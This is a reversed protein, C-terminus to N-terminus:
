VRSVILTEFIATVADWSMKERTLRLGEKAFAERQLPSELLKLCEAALSEASDALLINRGPDVELGEAGISTSVTPIGAAMAEYIKLRTGGGIRLPVVSVLSGHLWPRVDEVTGTVLIRSDRSLERLRKTPRRGALAVTTDPRHRWILPMIEQTLWVAGDVNPLWDMSGLFILDAKHEPPLNPPAFFDTDVGTPVWTADQRGFRTRTLEADKESVCIVRSFSRSALGEFRNMKRAQSQLYWNHLWTSAREAHREWILSEVNHQFLVLRDWHDLSAAPALFDCVIADYREQADLDRAKARMAESKWREIAVPLESFVGRFLDWLFYLSNKAAVSHPVAYHRRCYEGAQVPGMPNEPDELTLYDVEHKQHLRKLMELTRIRGGRDVPHLYDTKVWLLKM